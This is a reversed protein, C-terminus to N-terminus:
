PGPMGSVAQDTKGGGHLEPGADFAVQSEGGVPLDDDEVIGVGPPQAGARHADAFRSENLETPQLEAPRGMGVSALRSANIAPRTGNSSSTM